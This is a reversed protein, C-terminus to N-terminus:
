DRLSIEAAHEYERMDSIVVEEGAAVQTKLEVFDFNSEGTEVMRRVAKDGM